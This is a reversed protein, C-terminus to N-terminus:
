PHLIKMAVPLPGYKLVAVLAKAQNQSFQGDIVFSGSIASEIVPSSIVTNDLTITLADGIHNGTFQQFRQLADGQMECAIEPLNTNPDTTLRLSDPNLDQGTFLPRDGPNLNSFQAPDFPMGPLFANHGTDWFALVGTGLLITLTQQEDGGFHPVIVQIGAQKNITQVQVSYGQLGFDSIRQSFVSVTAQLAAQSPASKQAPVLLVRIGNAASVTTNAHKVTAFTFVLGGILLAVFLLAAASNLRTLFRRRSFTLAPAPSAYLLAERQPPRERGSYVTEIPELVPIPQSYLELREHVRALVQQEEQTLQYISRLQEILEANAQEAPLLEDHLDNHELM